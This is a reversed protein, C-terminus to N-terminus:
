WSPASRSARTWPAALVLLLRSLWHLRRPAHAGAGRHDGDGAGQARGHDLRRALHRAAPRRARPRAAAPRRGDLGPSPGDRLARDPLARAGRRQRRPLGELPRQAASGRDDRERRPGERERDSRRGLASDHRPSLGRPSTGKIPRTEVPGGSLLLFREPSASAVAAEGSISIPPSRAGRQARPPALYLAFPHSARRRGGAAALPQGPLHRRRPRVRPDAGGRDPVARALVHFRRRRRSACRGTAAPGVGPPSGRALGRRASRRDPVALERRVMTARARPAPRARRARRPCAPRSCGRGEPGTTGPSRGTTSASACTPFISITSAPRLCGSSSIARPRLRSLGRRRGPVAAARPARGARLACAAAALEAFPDEREDRASAPGALSGGDPVFPRGLASRSRRASELLLPYPLDLFRACAEAPPPADKLEFVLPENMSPARADTAQASAAPRRGPASRRARALRAPPERALWAPSRRERRATLYGWDLAGEQRYSKGLQLALSAKRLEKGLYFAHSAEAVDLAAFLESIDTGSVFREANFVHIREGDTFIRYDLDTIQTQMRRLEAEGYVRCPRRGPRDAPPHRRAQAPEEEHGRLADPPPRHRGRAGRRPGVPDGGHHARPSHGAGPLLGAAAGHRGTSDAETLETLNAIGMLM